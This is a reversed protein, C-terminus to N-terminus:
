LSGYKKKVFLILAGTLFKSHQIFGKELNENIYGHLAVLKNQSLNYIPRFPLQAGEKLDTTCDYPRHESLPTLTKRKLCTRSNRINPLFKM